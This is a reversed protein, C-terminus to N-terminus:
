HDVKKVRKPDICEDCEFELTVHKINYKELREKVKDRIQTTERIDTKTTLVHADIVNVNSCLSWLHIDHVGDIGEVSTIDSYVDEFKVNKPTFQLLIRVSDDIVMFGSALVVISIIIGLIPDVIYQGTFHIWVSAIIVAVSFLADTVVHLFAGKVNVDDHGHLGRAIYVNVFLGILAVGFMTTSEIPQPNGIRSFAETMIWISIGILLIGNLFAALIEIRHYGFTKEETPLKKAIQIATLSIFLAFVDRFMHGADGLLSLSGSVIGGVVEVFFFGFTLIIAIKLTGEIHNHHSHM